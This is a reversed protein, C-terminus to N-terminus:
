VFRFAIAISERPSYQDGTDSSNQNMPFFLLDFIHIFFIEFQTENIELLPEFLGLTFVSRFLRMGPAEILAIGFFNEFTPWLRNCEDLFADEADFKLEPSFEGIPGCAGAFSFTVICGKSVSGVVVWM